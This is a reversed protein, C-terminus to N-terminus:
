GGWKSKSLTFIILFLAFFLLIVMKWGHNGAADLRNYYEIEFFIVIMIVFVAAYKWMLVLATCIFMFILIGLWAGTEFFLSEFVANADMLVAHAFPLFTEIMIAVAM